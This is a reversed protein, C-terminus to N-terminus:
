RESTPPTRQDRKEMEIETRLREEDRFLTALADIRGPRTFRVSVDQEAADGDVEVHSSPSAHGVYNISADYHASWFFPVTDFRERAGLINRAATQGQRQAVVWYEVRVREGTGAHPWTTIDGAAYVGAARTELHEDVLVRQDVNLGAARGPFSEAERRRRGRCSRGAQKSREVARVIARSVFDDDLRVLLLPEGNAHGLVRDGPRLSTEDVGAALDPGTLEPKDV